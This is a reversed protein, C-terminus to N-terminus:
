TQPIKPVGFDYGCFQRGNKESIQVNKTGTM